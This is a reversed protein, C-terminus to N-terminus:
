TPIEVYPIRWMCFLRSNILRSSPRDRLRSIGCPFSRYWWIGYFNRDTDSYKTKQLLNLNFYNTRVFLKVASLQAGKYPQQSLPFACCISLHKWERLSARGNESLSGNKKGGNEDGWGETRGKIRTRCREGRIRRGLLNNAIVERAL